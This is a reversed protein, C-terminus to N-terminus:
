GRSGSGNPHVVPVPSGDTGPEDLILGLEVARRGVDQRGAAQLKDLVAQVHHDVTRVSLVLRGAIEANTLGHALLRATGARGRTLETHVAALVADRGMEDDAGSPLEARAADM